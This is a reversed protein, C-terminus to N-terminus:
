SMTIPVATTAARTVMRTTTMDPPPAEQGALTAVIVVWVAVAQLFGSTAESGPWTLKAQAGSVREIRQTKASRVLPPLGSKPSAFDPRM